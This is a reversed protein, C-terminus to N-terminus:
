TPSQLALPASCDTDGPGDDGPGDDGPGDDGPGNDEPGDVAYWREIVAEWEALSRVAIFAQRVADTDPHHRSFKIGFKRMMMSARKEGHLGLSLTFHERLVDRQQYITPPALPPTADTGPNAHRHEMLQRAQRFVWPNGICGRAVSVWHVGTTQIMDFIDTARWIDGSGGLTFGRAAFDDRYRQVLDTLFSWRSPGLYKQQVTRGHVTAGSYGLAMAAEFITFFNAQADPSDDSGRRLKVTLPVADGVQDRVARLIDIAEDPVSLLHGGRSRKKIKKVPCALNIDITDYGLDLLIAAAQAIENPHSGMLQGATPHDEPDLQADARGKGGQILFQDLMAETVCYPAGHRRAVRRMAADSYGALGAQYFPADLRVPARTHKGLTLMCGM